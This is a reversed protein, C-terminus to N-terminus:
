RGHHYRGSSRWNPGSLLASRGSGGPGPDQGVEVRRGSVDVFNVKLVLGVTGFLDGTM